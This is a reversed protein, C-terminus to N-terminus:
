GCSRKRIIPKVVSTELAQLELEELFIGSVVPSLSSGMAMGRKQRYFDGNWYFYTNCLCVTLLEMITDVTHHTRHQLKVDEESRKHVVLLSEDVPTTTFLSVVDLSMLVHRESIHQGNILKVFQEYRKLCTLSKGILPNLIPVLYRALNQCPSGISSVIPRLPFGTKHVKVLGYIHPPKTFKPALKQKEREDFDGSKKVAALVRNEISKTPDGVLKSYDDSNVLASFKRTYDTSDQVVVISREIKALDLTHMLNPVGNSSSACRLFHHPTLSSVFEM